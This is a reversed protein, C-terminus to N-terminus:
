AAERHEFESILSASAVVRGFVDGELAVRQLAAEHLPPHASGCVDVTLTCLKGGERYMRVFPAAKGTETSM